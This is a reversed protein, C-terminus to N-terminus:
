KLLFNGKKFNWYKLNYWHHFKHKKTLYLDLLEKEHTIEKSVYTKWIYCAM